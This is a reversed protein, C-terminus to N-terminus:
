RAGPLSPRPRPHHGFLRTYVRVTLQATSTRPIVGGSGAVTSTRLFSVEAPLWGNGREYSALTSYTVGFGVVQARGGTGVDLVSADIPAGASDTATTTSADAQRTRLSYHLAVAFSESAAWRPTAEIVLQRGGTRDVLVERDETVLLAGPTTPVRLTQSSALPQEARLAVTAWFRRSWSVDTASRLLLANAGTGTGIDFFDYPVDVAGTAFRYGVGVTSRLRLGPVARRATAGFTDLWMYSAEAEVDGIGARQVTGLSDANFGFAPDAIIQNLGRNALRASAGAPTANSDLDKVQFAVFRRALGRIRADVARELDTGAIPVLFSGVATSTGYVAGIGNAVTRAEAALARAGTIDKVVDECGARVPTGATVPCSNALAVISDAAKRLALLLQQNRAAATSATSNSLAQNAPNFGLNGTTGGPNVSLNVTQRTSVFPVTLGVSLRRTIGVEAQIPVRAVFRRANTTVSGVTLGVSVGISDRLARQAATLFPLQAAGLSDFSIPAGLGVVKSGETGAVGGTQDKTGEFIGAIRVRAKGREPVTADGFGGVVPQAGGSAAALGLLIWSLAAARFASRGHRRAM